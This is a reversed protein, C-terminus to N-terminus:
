ELTTSLFYALNALAPGAAAGDEKQHTKMATDGPTRTVQLQRTTGLVVGTPQHQVGTPAITTVLTPHLPAPATPDVMSHSLFSVNKGTPQTALGAMM